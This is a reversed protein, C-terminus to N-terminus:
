RRRRLGRTAEAIRKIEHCPDCLAQINSDSETGGEALPVIHDRITAPTVRSQALCTVCLPSEEFLRARLRQLTTGRIRSQERDRDWGTRSRRQTIRPPLHPM